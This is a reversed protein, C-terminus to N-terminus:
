RAGAAILREGLARLDTEALSALPWAVSRGAADVPSLLAHCRDGYDLLAGITDTSAEDSVEGAPVMAGGRRLVDQLVSDPVAASALHKALLDARAPRPVDMWVAPRRALAAHLVPPLAPQEGIPLVEDVWVARSPDCHRLRDVLLSELWAASPSAEGPLSLGPMGRQELLEAVPLVQEGLVGLTAVVAQSVGGPAARVWRLDLAQSLIELGAKVWRRYNVWGGPLVDVDAGRTRLSAALASSDLGGRGCYLLLVADVPLPEILAALAYPVDVPADAVALPMERSTGATWPVSVAGPVHDEDYADRDRLDVILAYADFEQVELQHPHAPLRSPFAPSTM